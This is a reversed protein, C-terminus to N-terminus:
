ERARVHQEAFGCCGKGKVQRHGPRTRGYCGALGAAAAGAALWALSVVAWKGMKVTGWLEAVM